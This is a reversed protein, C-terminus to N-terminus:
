RRCGRGGGATAKNTPFGLWPRTLLDADAPQGPLRPRHASGRGHNRASTQQGHHAHGPQPRDTLGAAQAEAFDANESLFGYGPHIADCGLQQAVGSATAACTARALSPPRHAGVEALMTHARGRGHGLLGGPASAMELGPHHARRSRWPQRHPNKYVHLADQDSRKTDRLLEALNVINSSMEEATVSNVLSVIRKQLGLTITPTSLGLTHGNQTGGVVFSRYLTRRTIPSCHENRTQRLPWSQKMM